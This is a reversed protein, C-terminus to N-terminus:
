NYAGHPPQPYGVGALGLASAIDKRGGRNAGSPAGASSVGGISVGASGPSVSRRQTLPRAFGRAVSRSGASKAVPGTLCQCRLRPSLMWVRPFICLVGHIM